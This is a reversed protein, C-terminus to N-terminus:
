DAIITFSCLLFLFAAVGFLLVVANVVSVKRLVPVVMPASAALATATPQRVLLRDIWTGFLAWHNGSWMRTTHYLAAATIVCMIGTISLCMARTEAEPSRASGGSRM